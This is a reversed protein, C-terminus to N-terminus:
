IWKWHWKWLQLASFIQQCLYASSFSFKAIASDSLDVFELNDAFAVLHDIILCNWSSSFVQQPDGEIKCFVFYWFVCSKCLNETQKNKGKGLYQVYEKESEM